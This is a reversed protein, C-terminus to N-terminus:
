LGEGERCRPRREHAERGRADRRHGIQPGRRGRETRLDAELQFVRENAMDREKEVRVYRFRGYTVGMLYGVGTAVVFVVATFMWM